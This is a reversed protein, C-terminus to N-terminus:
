GSANRTSLLRTDSSTGVLLYGRRQIDSMLTGAPMRNPKPQDAVPRYSATAAPTCTPTTAAQPKASAAPTGTPIAPTRDPASCAVLVLALAVGVVVSGSRRM